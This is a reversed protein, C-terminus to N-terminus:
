QMNICRATKCVIIGVLKNMGRKLIAATPDGNEGIEGGGGRVSRGEGERNARHDEREEGCFREEKGEQVRTTRRQRRGKRRNDAM